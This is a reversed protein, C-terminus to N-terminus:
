PPLFEHLTKERRFIKEQVMDLPIKANNGRSIQRFTTKKKKLASIAAKGHTDKKGVRATRCAVVRGGRSAFVGSLVEKGTVVCLSGSVSHCVFGWPSCYQLGDEAIM